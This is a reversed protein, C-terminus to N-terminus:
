TRGAELPLKLTVENEVVEVKPTVGLLRTIGRELYVSTFLPAKKGLDTRLTIILESDTRSTTYESMRMYRSFIDMVGMFAGLDKKKFWFLALEEIRSSQSIALERIKEEPLADLIAGFTQKSVTVFGFKKALRDFETYKSLLSNHLETVTRGEEKADSVLVEDIEKPIRFSKLVTRSRKSKPLAM